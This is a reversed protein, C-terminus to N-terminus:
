QDSDNASDESELKFGCSVCEFSNPTALVQTSQCNPCCARREPTARRMADIAIFALQIEKPADLPPRTSWDHANLDDHAVEIEVQRGPGELGRIHITVEGM